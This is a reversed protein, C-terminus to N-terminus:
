ENASNEKRSTQYHDDVAHIRTRGTHDALAMVDSVACHPVAVTFRCEEAFDRVLVDCGTLSELTRIVDNVAAYTTTLEFLRQHYRTETSCHELAERTSLKYAAILGPKGLRTGGFYRVVVVAVNDLGHSRLELVIPLGATGSPEGDDHTHEDGGILAGYCHHSAAPHARKCAALHTKLEDLRACRVAASLFRSGRDRFEGNAAERLTRYADPSTADPSTAGRDHRRRSDAV